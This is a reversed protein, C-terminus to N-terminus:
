EQCDLLVYESKRARRANWVLWCYSGVSTGYLCLALIALTELSMTEREQIAPPLPNEQPPFSEFWANLQFTIFELEMDIKFKM